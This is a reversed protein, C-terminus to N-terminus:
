KKKERSVFPSQSSYGAKVLWKPSHRKALCLWRCVMKGIRKRRPPKAEKVYTIVLICERIAFRMNVRIDCNQLKVSKLLVSDDFAILAKTILYKHFNAPFDPYPLAKFDSFRPCLEREGM